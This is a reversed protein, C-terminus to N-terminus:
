RFGAALMAITVARDPYKLLFLAAANLVTSQEGHTLGSVFSGTHHREVWDARNSVLEEEASIQDVGRLNLDQFNQDFKMQRQTSLHRSTM